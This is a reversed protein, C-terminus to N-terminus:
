VKVFKYAVAGLVALGIGAYLISSNGTSYGWVGLVAGATFFVGGFVGTGKRLLKQM